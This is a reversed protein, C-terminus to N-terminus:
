AKLISQKVVETDQIALEYADPLDISRMQFYVVESYLDDKLRQNLQAAMDVNIVSRKFFFDEAKYDACVDSIGDMGTRLLLVRLETGFNTYIEYIKDPLM